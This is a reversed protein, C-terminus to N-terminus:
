YHSLFLVSVTAIDNIKYLKYLGTIASLQDFQMCCDRICCECEYLSVMYMSIFRKFGIFFYKHVKYYM